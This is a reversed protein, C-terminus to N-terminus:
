RKNEKKIRQWHLRKKQGAIFKSGALFSDALWISGKGTRELFEKNLRRATGGQVAQGKCGAVLQTFNGEGPPIAGPGDRQLRPWSRSQSINLRGTFTNIEREGKKSEINFTIAAAEAQNQFGLKECRIGTSM